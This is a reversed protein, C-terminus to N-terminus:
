SNDFKNKLSTLMAALEKTETIWQQSTSKNLYGIETGIYIQTRAEALSARAIDIFRSKEKYIERCVGEAINSPVSLGSRTLQDRFGYDKIDATFRYIDVSLRASRKWVDLNEFNM